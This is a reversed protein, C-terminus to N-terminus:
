FWKRIVIFSNRMNASMEVVFNLAEKEYPQGYFICYAFRIYIQLANHSRMFSIREPRVIYYCYHCPPSRFHHAFCLSVSLFFLFFAAETHVSHPQTKRKVLVNFFRQVFSSLLLIFFQPAHAHLGISGNASKANTSLVWNAPSFGLLLLLMASSFDSKKGAAAAATTTEAATTITASKIRDHRRDTANLDFLFCDFLVMYSLTFAVGFGLWTENKADDNYM